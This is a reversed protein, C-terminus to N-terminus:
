RAQLRRLLEENSLQRISPEVPASERWREAAEPSMGPPVQLGASPAPTAAGAPAVQTEEGFVNDPNLKYNRVVIGLAKKEQDAKKKASDYYQQALNIYEQRQNPQLFQGGRLKTLMNELRAYLGATDRATAFETERVVSGPDLMKMFGTILAIDGPGTSAEASSQLNSFTSDLEQFIKIRGQYEKRIKEEQEFKKAPDVGGAAELAALELTAKRTEEGLKKTTALAQGIQAQTLGAQLGKNKLDALQQREAFDAEAKAKASNAQALALEAKQRQEATGAQALKIKADSQAAEADAVAKDELAKAKRAAEAATLMARGGEDATVVTSVFRLADRPSNRIVSRMREISAQEAPNAALREDLIQEAMDPRNADIAAMLQAMSSVYAKRKEAPIQELFGKAATAMQPPMKLQFRLADAITPEKIANFEDRAAVFEDRIKKEQEFELRKLAAAEQAARMRAIGAGIELGQQLGTSTQEPLYQMPQVIM